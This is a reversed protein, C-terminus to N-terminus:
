PKVIFIAGCITILQSANLVREQIAIESQDFYYGGNPNEYAKASGMFEFFYMLSGITFMIWGATNVPSRTPTAKM